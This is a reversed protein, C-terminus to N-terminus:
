PQPLYCLEPSVHSGKVLVATQVDTGNETCISPKKEGLFTNSKVQPVDPQQKEM